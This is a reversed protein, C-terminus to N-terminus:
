FYNRASTVTNLPGHPAFKAPQNPLTPTDTCSSPVLWGCAPATHRQSEIIKFQIQIQNVITHRPQHLGAGRCLFSGSAHSAAIPPAWVSDWQCSSGSGDRPRRMGCLLAENQNKTKSQSEDFTEVKPHVRKKLLFFFFIMCM